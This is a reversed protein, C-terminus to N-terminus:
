VKRSEKVLWTVLDEPIDKVLDLAQKLQIASLMNLRYMLYIVILITPTLTPAPAQIPAVIKALTPLDIKTPMATIEIKGIQQDVM